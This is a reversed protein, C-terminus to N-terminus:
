KGHCLKLPFRFFFFNLKKNGDIIERETYNGDSNAPYYFFLIYPLYFLLFIICPLQEPIKVCFIKTLM